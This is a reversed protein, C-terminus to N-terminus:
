REAGVTRAPPLRLLRLALLASGGLLVTASLTALRFLVLVAAAVSPDVGAAALLLVGSGEVVGLGLPVMSIGGAVHSLVYVLAARPLSVDDVGVARAAALMAGAGALADLLSIVLGVVLPRGRLLRRGTQVAPAYRPPLEAEVLRGLPGQGGLAWALGTACAALLFMAAVYELQWGSAVLGVWAMGAFDTVGAAAGVAIAMPYPINFRMAILVRSLDASKALTFWQGALYVALASRWPLPYGSATVYWRWRVAKLGYLLLSSGLAAAALPGDLHELTELTRTLDIFQGTALYLTGLVAALVAVPVVRRLRLWLTPM